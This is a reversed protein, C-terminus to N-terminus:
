QYIMSEDMRYNDSLINYLRAETAAKYPNVFIHGIGFLISGALDWGLFSLDLIFMDMKHGRTMDRSKRIAENPYLDPEESLIYPVMRYEYTKILGPIIFLFTWLVTYLGRLFQTQVIRFYERSNFTSLLSGISVDGEFGRLFFRVKGVEIAFGVTVLLFLFLLFIIPLVGRYLLFMPSRVIRNPIFMDMRSNEMAQMEPVRYNVQDIIENNYYNEDYNNHDLNRSTAGNGSGSLLSAILCVIFAKWYHNRLFDKAYSKLEKRSWM